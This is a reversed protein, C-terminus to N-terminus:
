PRALFMDRHHALLTKDPHYLPDDPLLLRGDAPLQAALEPAMVRRDAIVRYEDDVIFHGLRFATAADASLPLYNGMHLPGGEERPWIAVVRLTPHVGSIREFQEGTLACRFGYATLVQEYIARYTELSPAAEFVARAEDFGFNDDSSIM